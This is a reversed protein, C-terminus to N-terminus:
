SLTLRQWEVGGLQVFGSSAVASAHAALKHPVRSRRRRILGFAAPHVGRQVPSRLSMREDAETPRTRTAVVLSLCLQFPVNTRNRSARVGRPVHLYGGSSCPQFM